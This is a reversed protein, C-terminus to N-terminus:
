KNKKRKMYIFGIIFAIIFIGVCVSIMINMNDKIIIDTPADAGGIVSTSNTETKNIKELRQQEYKEFYGNNLAREMDYAFGHENLIKLTKTDTSSIKWVEAEGGISTILYIEGVVLDKYSNINLKEYTYERNEQFDGKVNKIQVVTLINNSWEKVEGFYVQGDDELALPSIIDGAFCVMSMSLYVVLVMLISVIKKM